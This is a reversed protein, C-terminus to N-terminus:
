INKLKNFTFRIAKLKHYLHSSQLAKLNDHPHVEPDALVWAVSDEKPTHWFKEWGRGALMASWGQSSLSGPTECCAQRLANIRAEMNSCGNLFSKELIRPRGGLYIKQPAVLRNTARKLKHQTQAAERNIRSQILSHLNDRTSGKGLVRNSFSRKRQGVHGEVTDEIGLYLPFNELILLCCDQFAHWYKTLKWVYPVLEEKIDKESKQKGAAKESTKLFPRIAFLYSQTVCVDFVFCFKDYETLPPGTHYITRAINGLSAGIAQIEMPAMSFADGQRDTFLTVM